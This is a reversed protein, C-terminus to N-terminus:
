EDWNFSLGDLGRSCDDKCRIARFSCGTLIGEPSLSLSIVKTKPDQKLHSRACEEYLVEMTVPPEGENHRGIDNPGEVYSSTIKRDRDFEQFRREVVKGNQVKVTTNNGFGVWSEFSRTYTYSNKHTEKEKEWVARSEALKMQLDAVSQRDFIGPRNGWEANIKETTYWQEPKEKAFVASNVWFISMLVFITLNKM